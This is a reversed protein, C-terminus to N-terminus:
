SGTGGVVVKVVQRRGSKDELVLHYIGVTKPMTLGDCLSSSSGTLVLRGQANFLYLTTYPCEGDNATDHQRLKIAGGPAVPNPYVKPVPTRSEPRGVGRAVPDIDSFGAAPCTKVRVNDTTYLEVYMSDRHSFKTHLSTGAIFYFRRSEPIKPWVEEEEQKRYWECSKFVLGHGNYQPNNNVIRISGLHESVVDFLGFNKKLTFTYNKYKKDSTSLRVTISKRGFKSVDVLFSKLGLSISKGSVTEGFVGEPSDYSIKLWTVGCPVDYFITDNASRIQERVLHVTQRHGPTSDTFTIETITISEQKYYINDAYAKDDNEPIKVDKRRLSDVYSHRYPPKLHVVDGSGLGNIYYIGNQDTKVEKTKGDPDGSAPTVTYEVTTNEWPVYHSKGPLAERMVMGRVSATITASNTLEGDKISDHLPPSYYGAREGSLGYRVVILKNKGESSYDNYRAAASVTVKGSDQPLVGHLTGVWWIFATDSPPNWAQITKVHPPEITLQRPRVEIRASALVRSFRRGDVVLANPIYWLIHTTDVGVLSVMGDSNVAAAKENLSLWRSFDTSVSSLVLPFTDDGYSKRIVTTDRTVDYRPYDPCDVNRIGNKCYSTDGGNGPNYFNPDNAATSFFSPQSSQAFTRGEAGFVSLLLLLNHYFTRRMSLRAYKLLKYKIYIHIKV